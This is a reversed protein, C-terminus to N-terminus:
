LKEMVRGRVTQDTVTDKGKEEPRRKRMGKKPCSEGM